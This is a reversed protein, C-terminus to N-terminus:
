SAEEADLIELAHCELWTPPELRDHLRRIVGEPVPRPRRRNRALATALPVDLHVMEIRADYDAFLNVWRGRIRQSLNTANFAFDRGARLHERCAERAAQAVSGQDDTPEVDLEARVADLAVVPLGPRHQALWTDKGAAPLGSLMTVTCRYAEHPVHSRDCAPDRFFRFRAQDNGFPYPRGDCALERCILDWLAFDDESRPPGGGSSWAPAAHCVRGRFDARAVIGLLRTDLLWSMRIVDRLPNERELVRPPLAHYRVLSVIRERLVPPCALAALERRALAVGAVAHKPAHIHGTAPDRITTEPKGADHFVASMLCAARDRPELDHWGAVGPLERCVLQTHTWVDGEAHWVPDQECAALKAAWPRSGAWAITAEVDGSSLRHWTSPTPMAASRRALVAPSALSRRNRPAYPNALSTPRTDADRNPSADRDPSRM